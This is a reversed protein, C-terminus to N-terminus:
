LVGKTRLDMVQAIIQQLQEDDYYLRLGVSVRPPEIEHTNYVRSWFKAYTLGVLRAADALSAMGTQKSKIYPM